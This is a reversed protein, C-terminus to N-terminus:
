GSSLHSSCRSAVGRLRESGFPPRSGQSSGKSLLALCLRQGGCVVLRLRSCFGFAAHIGRTPPPSLFALPGGVDGLEAPQHQDSGWGGEEELASGLDTVFGHCEVPDFMTDPVENTQKFLVWNRTPQSRTCVVNLPLWFFSLNSVIEFYVHTRQWKFKEKHITQFTCSGSTCFSLGPVPLSLPSGSM